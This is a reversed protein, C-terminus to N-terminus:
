PLSIYRQSTFAHLVPLDVATTFGFAAVLLVVLGILGRERYLKEPTQAASGPAMSLWLYHAFLVVVIPLTLLYEVRYRIVFIGFFACSLLAYVFCSVTLSEESYGSFSARYRVLLERGESGVIERYESLRKAAMLFSGGFWYAFLVSSPPLTSPDVMAWGIMLRLPNNVAEFLVDLYTRNKLRVPPVNYLAGQLLFLGAVVLMSTSAVRACGLGVAALLGWELLVVRGDLVRQVAARASKTPHHKDFDRDLWENIVYNASACAFACAVGLLISLGLNRAHDGRLLWALAIGPAIFLHKVSHDIRAIRLYDRVSGPAAHNRASTV